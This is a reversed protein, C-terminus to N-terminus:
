AAANGFVPEMRAFTETEDDTMPRDDFVEGDVEDGGATTLQEAVLSRSESAMRKQASVLRALDASVNLAMSQVRARVAEVMEAQALPHPMVNHWLQARRPPHIHLLERGDKTFEISPADEYSVRVWGYGEQLDGLSSQLASLRTCISRASITARVVAMEQDMISSTRLVSLRAAARQLDSAAEKRRRHKDSSFYQEWLTLHPRASPRSQEAPLLPNWMRNVRILRFLSDIESAMGTLHRALVVLAPEKLGRTKEKGTSQAAGPGNGSEHQTDRWQELFNVLPRIDATASVDDPDLRPMQCVPHYRYADDDSRCLEFFTCHENILLEDVITKNYIDLVHRIANSTDHVALRESGNFNGDTNNIARLRRKRLASLDDAGSSAIFSTAAPDIVTNRLEDRAWELASLVSPIWLFGANNELDFDWIHKAADASKPIALALYRAPRRLNDNLPQIRALSRVIIRSLDGAESLPSTKSYTRVLYADDTPRPGSVAGTRGMTLITQPIAAWAQALALLDDLITMLVETNEVEGTRRESCCDTEEQPQHLPKPSSSTNKFDSLLLHIVVALIVPLLFGLALRWIAVRTSRRTSQPDHNKQASDVPVRPPIIIVPDCELIFHPPTPTSLIPPSHHLLISQHDNLHLSLPRDPDPEFSAHFCIELPQLVTDNDVDVEHNIDHNPNSNPRTSIRRRSPIGVSFRLASFGDQPHTPSKQM